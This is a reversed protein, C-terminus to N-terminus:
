LEEDHSIPQPLHLLIEMDESLLCCTLLRSCPSLLLLQLFLHFLQATIFHLLQM